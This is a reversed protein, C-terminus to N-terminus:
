AYRASNTADILGRVGEELTTADIRQHEVLTRSELILDRPQRASDLSERFEFPVTRGSVDEVLCILDGISIAPSEFINVTIESLGLDRQASLLQSIKKATDPATIYHRRVSLPVYLTVPRGSYAARILHSILGQRKTLDQRAGFVNAPRFLAIDIGLQQGAERLAEEQQIKAEGYPSLYGLPAGEDFPSVSSSGGYVGGASSVFGIQGHQSANREEAVLELFCQFSQTERKAESAPSNVVSRGAAWVITWGHTAATTEFFSRLGQRM